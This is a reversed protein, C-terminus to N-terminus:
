VSVSLSREFWSDVFSQIQMQLSDFQSRFELYDTDFQFTSSLMFTYRVASSWLKSVEGKRHDLIDYNKKKTAEVITKYRVAITDIGEIRVNGINAYGDMTTIM